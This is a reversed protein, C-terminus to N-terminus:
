AEGAAGGDPRRQRELTSSPDESAGDRGAGADPAGGGPKNEQGDHHVTESCFVCLLAKM